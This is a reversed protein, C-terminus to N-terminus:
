FEEEHQCCNFVFIGRRRWMRIAEFRDDFVFEIPNEQYDECPIAGELTPFECKEGFMYEDLWREKLQDDSTYDGVPRMKLVRNWSEENWYTPKLPCKNMLWYITKERVSEFRGSWIKINTWQAQQNFVCWSPYIPKDQDCKKYFSKWDAKWKKDKCPSGYKDLYYWEDHSYRWAKPDKSPDVFHTRHECDALTGDLDFIIM